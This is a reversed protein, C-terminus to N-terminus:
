PSAFSGQAQWSMARGLGNGNVRCCGTGTWLLCRQQLREAFLLCRQQHRELGRWPSPPQKYVSDPDNPVPDAVLTRGM